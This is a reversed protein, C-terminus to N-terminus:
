NPCDRAFHGEEGCNFCDVRGRGGGGRGGGYYGGRTGGGGGGRGRGFRGGGGRSSSFGQGRGGDAPAAYCDKAFHGIQGCNYCEVAGTSASRRNRGLPVVDTARNIGDEAVEVQFEVRQGDYLTRFGDFKISTQHVFLDDSPQQDSEPTIFGFGKWGNFWKVTGRLRKSGEEGEGEAM